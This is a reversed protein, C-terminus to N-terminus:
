YTLLMQYNPNAHAETLPFDYNGIAEFGMKKYFRLARENETWVFLWMGTQRHAKSLNINFQLLEKGLKLHHFAELLYLRELKTVRPLSINPHAADFVIKSYGTPQDQHYSIHYLNDPNALEEQMAEVSFKASVYEQIVAATASRGHSEIFSQKGIHALLSADAAQAKIITTM